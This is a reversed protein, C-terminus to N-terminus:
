VAFRFNIIDGDRVIYEKGELRLVAEARCKAMSGRAIFDDYHVVEARIFGREIDSHIVGAAQPALTNNHITWARVEDEGVTFFSLLGLLEYSSRLLRHMAPQQIGADQRFIEAEEASLQQIEMEIQASIPLVATKPLAAWAGLAEVVAASRGIEKEDINPVLIHPKLSLFQYGRILIEEDPAFDLTRLPQLHDIATKCRQLVHEEKVHLDTKRVRMEKELRQLRNEIIGLDSLIFEEQVLNFDRQLDISNLPHPVNDNHFAAAIVLIADATRVQGLFQDSFGGKKQEEASLGSLDIYEITAPTKKKPTFIEDLRDLREDPVQVIARLSDRKGTQAAPDAVTGTLASFLTTKGSFPLGVIGIKM